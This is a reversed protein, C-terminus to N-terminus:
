PRYFELSCGKPVAAEIRIKRDTTLRGSVILAELQEMGSLFSYDITNDCYLRLTLKKLKPLQGIVALSEPGPEWDSVYLELEELNKLKSLPAFDDVGQHSDFKFKKISTADCISDLIETSMSFGSAHLDVTELQKLTGLVELGAQGERQRDGAQFVSFTKLNKLNRLASLDDVIARDFGVYEVSTIGAWASIDMPEGTGEAYLREVKTVSDKGLWDGIQQKWWPLEDFSDYTFGGMEGYESARIKGLAEKQSQWPVYWRQHLLGVVIAILATFLLFSRLGFRFFRRSAKRPSKSESQNDHM